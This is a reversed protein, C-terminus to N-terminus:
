RRDKVEVMEYGDEVLARGLVSRVAEDDDVLLIRARRDTPMPGPEDKPTPVVWQVALAGSTWLPTDPPTVRSGGLVPSGDEQTYNGGALDELRATM